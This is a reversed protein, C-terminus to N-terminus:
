AAVQTRCCTKHRTGRRIKWKARRPFPSCNRIWRSAVLSTGPTGARREPEAGRAAIVAAAEHPRRGAAGTPRPRQRSHEAVSRTCSPSNRGSPSGGVDGIRWHIPLCRPIKFLTGQLPIAPESPASRPTARASRRASRPTARARRQASRRASRRMARTHLRVAATAATAATAARAPPASHLRASHLRARM